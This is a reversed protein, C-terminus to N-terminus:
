KEQVFKDQEEKTPYRLGSKPDILGSPDFGPYRNSLEKVKDFAETITILGSHYMTYMEQFEKDLENLQEQTTIILEVEWGRDAYVADGDVLVGVYRSLSGSGANLNWCFAGAPSGVYAAGGFVFEDKVNGDNYSIRIRDGKKLTKLNLKTQVKATQM